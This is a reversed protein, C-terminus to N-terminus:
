VGGMLYFSVVMEMYTHLLLESGVEENSHATPCSTLLRFSNGTRGDRTHLFWLRSSWLMCQRSHKVTGERREGRNHFISFCSVLLSALQWAILAEVKGCIFGPLLVCSFLSCLIPLPYWGLGRSSTYRLYGCPLRAALRRHGFGFQVAATRRQPTLLVLLPLLGVEAPPLSCVASLQLGAGAAGQTSRSGQLSGVM